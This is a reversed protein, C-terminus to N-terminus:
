TATVIKAKVQAGSVRDETWPNCVHAIRKTAGIADQHTLSRIHAKAKVTNEKNESEEAEDEGELAENKSPTNASTPGRDELVKRRKAANFVGDNGITHAMLMGDTKRKYLRKDSLSPLPRSAPKPTIPAARSWADTEFSNCVSMQGFCLDCTAREFM